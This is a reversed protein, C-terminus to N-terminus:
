PAAQLVSLIFLANSSNPANTQPLSVVSLGMGIADLSFFERTTYPTGNSFTGSGPLRRAYGTRGSNVAITQAQVNAEQGVTFSNRVFTGDTANVSVATWTSVDAPIASIGFVNTYQNWRTRTDGVAPLITASYPTIISLEGNATIAVLMLSGNGARYAFLRDKWPDTPDTSTLDFGGATNTTIAPLPSREVTCASEATILSDDFCKADSLTGTAGINFTGAAQGWTTTAGATSPSWGLLNWKGELASLQVNQVPIGIITRTTGRASVAVTDDDLGIAARAVIVGAQSVVVDDLASNTTGYRCNGNTTLQTFDASNSPNSIRLTEADLRVTEVIPATGASIVSPALKILYYDTSRLASCNAAKPKLLLDAPLSVANMAAVPASGGPATNVPSGQAVTTTLAALTTGSTTLTTGLADLVQDYANGAAAGTATVLPQSVMDTIATVDIGAARLTGLVATQGAAVNSSTIATAISAISASDAFFDAPQKGVVQAVLLETLTTVNVTISDTSTAGGANTAVSHLKLAGDSSVAELMCPLSAGVLTVTYAGASTATTTATGSACKISVNAGALVSGQAIVGGLTLGTPPTPAATDDGGGGGCASLALASVVLSITTFFTKSM